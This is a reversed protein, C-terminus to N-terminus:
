AAKEQTIQAIYDELRHQQGWGLARIRSTDIAANMRNGPREPLMEVPGGFMRAVDLVSHSEAAGIPFEGEHEMALMLGAVIDAVHTWNRRQTGPGVVTLPLGTLHQRRFTEILTGSAQAPRERPGYVNYFYTVAWPLGNAHGIRAATDANQRKTMAYPSDAGDTAFRTSSGAYILRCRATLWRALVAETGIINSQRVRERDAFSAEVRSYEGLHFIVEPTEPILRAVDRTHGRRYQAGEIHNDESGASYDDLSVVDHGRRVLREVLHSGVFGAGGTVLIM